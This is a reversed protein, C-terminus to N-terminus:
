WDLFHEHARKLDAQSILGLYYRCTTELREHGLLGQIHGVPCGNRLLTTAFTHRLVHLSVRKPLGCRRAVIRCLREAEHRRLRRHSRATVFLAPNRDRRQDLDRRLWRIARESFFVRREKGGKGIITAEHNKWDIDSINLSLAESIRMGTGALTEILARFCMGTANADGTRNRIKICAIFQESEEQTLYIVSRRPVRLFTVHELDAVALGRRGSYAVLRKVAHIVTNTFSPGAGRERLRTKLDIFTDPSVKEIRLDGMTKVFNKIASRYKPVSEGTLAQDAVASKLFPELMASLRPSENDM